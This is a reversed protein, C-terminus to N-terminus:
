LSHAALHFCISQMDRVYCLCTLCVGDRRDRENQRRKERERKSDDERRTKRDNNRKRNDDDDGDHSM